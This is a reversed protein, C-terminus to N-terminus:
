AEGAESFKGINFYSWGLTRWGEGDKPNKELRAVLRQIMEEVSPLSAKPRLQGWSESAPSQTAAALRKVAPAEEAPSAPTQQAARADPM